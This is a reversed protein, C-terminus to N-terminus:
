GGVIFEKVPKGAGAASAGISYTTDVEVVEFRRFLDQAFPRNIGGYGVPM